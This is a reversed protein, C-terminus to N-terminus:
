EFRTISQINEAFHQLMEEEFTSLLVSGTEAFAQLSRIHDARIYLFDNKKAQVWRWDTLSELTDFATCLLGEERNLDIYEIRSVQIFMCDDLLVVEM